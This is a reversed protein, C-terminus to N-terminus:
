AVITSVIEFNIHWDYKMLLFLNYPVIRQNTITVEEKCYRGKFNFSHGGNEPNLRRYEPFGNADYISRKCIKNPFIHKAGVQAKTGVSQLIVM